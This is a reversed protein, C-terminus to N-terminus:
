VTVTAIGGVNWIVEFTSGDAVTLDADLTIVAIPVEGTVKFLVAYLFPGLDGGSISASVNDASFKADNATVVTTAVNTLPMGGVAWGNGSVQTATALVQTMTTNTLDITSAPDLLMLKYGGAADPPFVGATFNKATENYAQITPM